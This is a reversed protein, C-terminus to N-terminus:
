LGQRAMEARIFDVTKETVKSLGGVMKELDAKRAIPSDPDTKQVESQYKPDALTAEFAKIYTEVIQDSTGPPLALSKGIELVNESYELAELAMPDKIKGQLMEYMIPANGLIPRSVRKGNEIMGSQSIITFKGVDQFYKIDSISGFASMDAEGREMAQRVEATQRYGPVWKINWGLFAAGWLAQYYGTRLTTGVIAMVVPPQSKDTLRKVADDRIFLAQSPAAVGGVYKFKAPDYMANTRFLAEPDIQTQTIIATSLGDRESKAVWSNLPVVGGAGLQNLPLLTPNGPLHRVLNQGLIRGYIDVGGGAEFGIVMTVNKGAFSVNDAATAPQNAEALLLATLGSIYLAINRITVKM